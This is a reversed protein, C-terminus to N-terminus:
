KSPPTFSAAVCTFGLGMSLSDKVGDQGPNFQGSADLLDLDPSTAAKFLINGTLEDQTITHNKDGDFAALLTQAFTSNPDATIAKNLGDLIAPLFLSQFNEESLGGGLKGNTCGNANVDAEIRVGILELDLPIGMFAMQIHATAPGGAFHGSTISGSISSDGATNPDVMFSDSGDFKPTSKAKMGHFLNWEATPDNQLDNTTLMDLMVLQGTNVMEDLTSQIKLDPSVSVLTTLMDGILNDPSQQPDKDIDLALAQSQAHTTPILISNTVFHYSIDANTSESAVPVVTPTVSTSANSCAELSLAALVLFCAINFISKISRKEDKM